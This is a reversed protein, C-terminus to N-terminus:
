YVMSKVSLYSGEKGNLDKANYTFGVVKAKKGNDSPKLSATVANKELEYVKSGVKFQYKYSAGSKVAVIIGTSNFPKVNYRRGWQMSKVNLVNVLNSGVKKVTVTGKVTARAYQDKPSLQKVMDGQLEYIVSGTKLQYVYAEKTKKTKQDYVSVKKVLIDGTVTVQSAVSIAHAPIFASGLVSLSLISAVIAKNKKM